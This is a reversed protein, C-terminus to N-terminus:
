KLLTKVQQRFYDASAQVEGRNTEWNYEYEISIVGKFGQRKLVELIAPIDSIGTGWPLDHAKRVGKENLDKMHLEIVRGDLQQLCEIPSLGSRIWHGIDACAGIRPSMGKIAALVTDPSWYHSPRPHDHIAVNIKYQDCLKSILPIQSEQPESVINELHMAKAFEFLQVWDSDTKPKVVGYSVMTIGKRRLLDLVKDRTAADMHYDMQGPIGAGIDQNPIGEVFKVGCSDIRDLAESFNVVHFTWAQIALRWDSPHPDDYSFANPLLWRAKYMKLGPLRFVSKGKDDLVEDTWWKEKPLMIITPYGAPGSSVDKINKTYPGDVKTFTRTAPAMKFVANPMTLWLSDEGYVPYLDHADTGPLNISDKIVLDPHRLDFNYTLTYLHDKAASWLVNRRRDWVVNHAFPLFVKKSYVNGTTNLTDVHFIMLYSATSSATVINGDPLIEASHTNGGAYAYFVTKGDAIRVLAVGGLSANLLIYKGGYVPKADSPADFWKVDEPRIGSGAAHWEWVIKGTGTGVIAIRNAAQDTILLRPATQDSFGPLGATAARSIFSM